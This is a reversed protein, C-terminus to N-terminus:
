LYCLMEIKSLETGKISYYSIGGIKGIREYKIQNLKLFDLFANKECDLIQFVSDGSDLNYQGLKLSTMNDIACFASYTGECEIHNKVLM